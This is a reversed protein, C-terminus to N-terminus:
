IPSKLLKVPIVFQLLESQVKGWEFPRVTYAIPNDRTAVITEVTGNLTPDAALRRPLELVTANIQQYTNKLNVRSFHLELRIQVFNHHISANTFTFNGDAVYAISMPFPDANEIPYDPYSKFTVDSSSQVIDQLRAIADDVSNAM